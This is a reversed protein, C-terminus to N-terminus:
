LTPRSHLVDLGAIHPYRDRELVPPRQEIQEGCSGGGANCRDKEVLQPCEGPTQRSADQAKLSEITDGMETLPIKHCIDGSSNRLEPPAFESLFCSTCPHEKESLGVNMCTLSESSSRRFTAPSQFRLAAGARIM